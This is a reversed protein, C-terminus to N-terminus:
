AFVSMDLRDFGRLLEQVIHAIKAGDGVKNGEINLPLQPDHLSQRLLAWGSCAATDFKLRVGEYSPEVVTYGKERARQAFKQLVEQGYAAFDDGAIKMRFENSEVIPEMAAILSQLQHGDQHLKAAAILLKVALYAGDDLYYNEKLAGHGSTEIALPSVEGEANLRICEDIVNKYGRKYRHHKLKLDKELFDTLKDSTVSDTVITSGPYDPALIAAMMAILCDRNITSGDNLVASMRDGDTDFIIGIDANNKLVAAKLMAMAQKNEPNPIHNPFHGDPELFQSGVTDAGLPQLVKDVFFGSAGNGADVIIKLGQLPYSYDQADIGQCIKAKLDSSYLAIIDCKKANLPAEQVATKEALELIGKVDAKELGGAKTFFKLGNRNFPLHSATLMISGHFKTQPYIIGMFMSPTTALGCDYAQAGSGAIAKLAAVKLREASLRSDHGIGIKLANVPQATKQALWQLFAGVIRNVREPTLNVAEGAVGEMAIGRVDSGNQLKIM